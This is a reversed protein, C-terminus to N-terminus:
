NKCKIQKESGMSMSCDEKMGKNKRDTKGRRGGNQWAGGGLREM